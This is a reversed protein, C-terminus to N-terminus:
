HHLALMPLCIRARNILTINTTRLDLSTEDSIVFPLSSRRANRDTVGTNDSFVLFTQTGISHKSNHTANYKM